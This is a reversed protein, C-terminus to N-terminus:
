KLLGEELMSLITDDGVVIHDLVRIDVLALSKILNATISLDASSPEAVGSPHNHALIVAAANHHLARKIIERPYINSQNITGYFLEEYCIVRHKNDLFVCAFIEQQQHRLKASLYYKTDITKALEQREGFNSYLYRRSIELSAQIVAFKTVGIGKIQCLERQGIELLQRLGGFKALLERALDVATKGPIGTRWLIALLEADSLAKGGKELLKERPREAAFWSKITMFIM